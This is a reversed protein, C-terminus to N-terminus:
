CVWERKSSAFHFASVSKIALSTLLNLRCANRQLSERLTALHEKEWLWQVKKYADKLKNGSGGKQLSENYKEWGNLAKKILAACEDVVSKTTDRM